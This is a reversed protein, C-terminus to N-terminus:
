PGAGASKSPELWAKVPEGTTLLVSFHTPRSVDKEIKPNPDYGERRRRWTSPSSSKRGFRISSRAV